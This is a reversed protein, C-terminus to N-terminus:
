PQIEIIYKGFSMCPADNDSEYLMDLLATTFQDAQRNTIEGEYGILRSLKVEGDPIVGIQYTAKFKATPNIMKVVKSARKMVKRSPGASDTDDKQQTVELSNLCTGVSLSDARYLKYEHGNYSLTTLSQSGGSLQGSDRVKSVTSCSALTLLAVIVIPRISMNCYNYQM